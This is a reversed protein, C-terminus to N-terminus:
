VGWIFWCLFNSKRKACLTCPCFKRPNKGLCEFKWCAWVNRLVMLSGSFKFSHIYRAWKMGWLCIMDVHKQWGPLTWVYAHEVSPMQSPQFSFLRRRSSNTNSVKVVMCKVTVAFVFVFILWLPWSINSFCVEWLCVVLFVTHGM